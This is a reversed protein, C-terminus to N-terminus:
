MNRGEGVKWTTMRNLKGFPTICNLLWALEAHESVQDQHFLTCKYPDIGIALLAALMQRREEFLKKPDNPVTLAHLGVISFFLEDGNEFALNQLNVWNQLAGLYNGLHPIGTPQIGSFITKPKQSASIHNANRKDEDKKGDDTSMRRVTSRASKPLSKFPTVYGVKFTSRQSFSRVGGYLAATM